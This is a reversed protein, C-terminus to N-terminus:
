PQPDKEREPQAEAEAATLQKLRWVEKALVQVSSRLLSDHVHESPEVWRTVGMADREDIEILYVSHSTETLRAYYGVRISPVGHQWIAIQRPYEVKKRTDDTLM